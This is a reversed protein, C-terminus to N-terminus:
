HEAQIQRQLFELRLFRRKLLLKRRPKAPCNRRGPFREGFTEVCNKLSEFLDILVQKVLKFFRQYSGVNADSGCLV